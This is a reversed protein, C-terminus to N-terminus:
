IEGKGYWKCGVKTGSEGISHAMEPSNGGPLLSLVFHFSEYQGREQQAISQRCAGRRDVPTGGGCRGDVARLDCAALHVEQPRVLSRVDVDGGGEGCACGVVDAFDLLCGPEGLEVGEAVVGLGLNGLRRVHDIRRVDAARGSDDPELVVHVEVLDQDSGGHGAVLVADRERGVRRRDRDGDRQGAVGDVVPRRLVGVAANGFRRASKQEDEAHRTQSKPTFTRFPPSRSAGIVLRMIINNM